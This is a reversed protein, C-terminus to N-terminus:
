AVRRAILDIFDGVNALAKVDKTSFSTAFAKEVSVILTIHALSDWAPVDKATTADTIELTPDDFVDRFVSTLKQHIEPRTM